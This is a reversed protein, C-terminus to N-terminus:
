NFHIVKYAETNEKDFDAMKTIFVEFQERQQPIQNNDQNDDREIYSQISDCFSSVSAIEM